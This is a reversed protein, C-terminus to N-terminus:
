RDAASSPRPSRRVVGKSSATTSSAASGATTEAENSLDLALEVPGIRLHKLRRAGVWVASAAVLPWLLGAVGWLLDAIARLMDAMPRITASGGPQESATIKFVRPSPFTTWTRAFLRVIFGMRTRETGTAMRCVGIVRSM